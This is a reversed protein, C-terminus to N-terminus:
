SASSCPTASPACRATASMPSSDLEDDDLTVRTSYQGSTTQILGLADILAQALHDPYDEHINATWGCICVGEEDLEERHKRAVAAIRKSIRM